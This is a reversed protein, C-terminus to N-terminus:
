RQYASQMTRHHRAPGAHFRVDPDKTCELFMEEDDDDDHDSTTCRATRQQRVANCAAKQQIGPHALGALQAGTHRAGQRGGAARAVYM